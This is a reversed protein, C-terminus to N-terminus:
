ACAESVTGAERVCCCYTLAAIVVLLWCRWSWRVVHMCQFAALASSMVCCMLKTLKWFIKCIKM